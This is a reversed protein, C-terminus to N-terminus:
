GFDDLEDTNSFGAKIDQRVDSLPKRHYTLESSRTLDSYETVLDM